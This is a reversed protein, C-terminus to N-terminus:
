PIYLPFFTQGKRRSFELGREGQPGGSKKDVQRPISQRVPPALLLSDAQKGICSAYSVWTWDGPLSSRRSYSIAVWELINAQCIGHVSSDPPSCDLPDCLITCLQLSKVCVCVCPNAEKHLIDKPPESLLSDAQLAPSRPEIRSSPFPLRSWYEERSFEMYLFAQDAVIWPTM